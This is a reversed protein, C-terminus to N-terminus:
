PGRSELVRVRSSNDNIRSDHSRISGEVNDVRASLADLRVGDRAVILRVDDLKGTVDKGYYGIMAIVLALLGAILTRYFAMWMHGNSVNGSRSSEVGNNMAM